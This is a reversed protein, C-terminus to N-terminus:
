SGGGSGEAPVAAAYADLWRVIEASEFLPEGDVFLCPVTTRGTKDRLARWHAPDAHIDRLEVFRLGDPRPGVPIGLAHLRRHVRDCYPCGVYHYLALARPRDPPPVAM